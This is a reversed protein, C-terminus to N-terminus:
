AYSREASSRDHGVRGHSQSRDAGRTPRPTRLAAELGRAAVGRAPVQAKSWDDEEADKGDRRPRPSAEDGSTPEFRDGAWRWRSGTIRGDIVRFPVMTMNESIYRDVREPTIRLVVISHKQEDAGLGFPALRLAQLLGGAPTVAFGLRNIGLLLYAEDAHWFLQANWASEQVRRIRVMTAVVTLAVLALAVIARTKM